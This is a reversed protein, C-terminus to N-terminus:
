RALFIVPAGVFVTRFYKVLVEEVRSLLCEDNNQKNCKANQM